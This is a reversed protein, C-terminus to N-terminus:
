AELGCLEAANDRLIRRRAADDIEAFEVRARQMPAFFVPSDSGYLIREPGLQDVAWELLGSHVAFTAATDVYVNGHRAAEAVQVQHRPDGDRADGLHALILRVQPFADALPLFDEPMSRRDGSHTLVVAGCDAALEFVARGAEAVPYDDTEPHMKVGVCRPAALLEAAQDLTRRDRPNAVAWQLLGDRAAVERAAEANGALIAENGHRLVAQLPSVATWRTGAATARRLVVDLDGSVWDHFWPREAGTHRGYHAHVDIAEIDWM